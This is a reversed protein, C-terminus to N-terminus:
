STALFAWLSGPLAWRCTESCRRRRERGERLCAAVVIRERRTLLTLREHGEVEVVGREGSAVKPADTAAEAGVWRPRRFDVNFVDAEKAVPARIRHVELLTLDVHESVVLVVSSRARGDVQADGVLRFTRRRAGVSCHAPRM